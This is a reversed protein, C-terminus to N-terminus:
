TGTKKLNKERGSEFLEYCVSSQAGRPSHDPISAPIMVVALRVAGGSRLNIIYRQKRKQKMQKQKSSSSISMYPFAAVLSCLNIVGASQPVLEAQRLHFPHEPSAGPFTCVRRDESKISAAHHRNQSVGGVVASRYAKATTVTSLVELVLSM